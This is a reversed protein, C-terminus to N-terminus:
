QVIYGIGTLSAGNSSEFIFTYTGSSLGGCELVRTVGGSSPVTGIWHYSGSPFKVYCDVNGVSDNSAIIAKIGANSAYRGLVCSCQGDWSFDVSAGTLINDYSLPMIAGESAGIVYDNPAGTTTTVLTGSSEEPVNTVDAAYVFSTGFICVAMAVLFAFIRNSKKM